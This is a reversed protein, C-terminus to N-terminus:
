KTWFRFVLYQGIKWSNFTKGQMFRHVILLMVLIENTVGDGLLSYPLKRDYMTGRLAHDAVYIAGNVGNATISAVDISEVAM